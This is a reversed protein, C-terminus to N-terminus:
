LTKTPCKDPLYPNRERNLPELRMWVKSWNYLDPLEDPIVLIAHHYLIVTGTPGTLNSAFAPLRMQWISTLETDYDSSLRPVLICSASTVAEVGRHMRMSIASVWSWTAPALMAMGGVGLRLKASEVPKVTDSLMRAFAALGVAHFIIIAGDASTGLSVLITIFVIGVALLPVAIWPLVRKIRHRQTTPKKAVAAAVFFTAVVGFIEVAGIAATDFTVPIWSSLWFALVISYLSFQALKM